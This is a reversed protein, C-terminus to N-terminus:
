FVLEKQGEPHHSLVERLVLVDDLGEAFQNIEESCVSLFYHTAVDSVINNRQYKM